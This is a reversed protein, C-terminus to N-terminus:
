RGSDAAPLVLSEIYTNVELFDNLNSINPFRFSNEKPNYVVFSSGLAWLVEGNLLICLPRPSVYKEPEDIYPISFVKTWSEKVGYDKLVWVDARTLQYNCLVCICGGLVGLMVAFFDGEGYNPQEVTGYIESELDLSVIDWRSSTHVVWPSAFWHLKGNAFKGMDDRPAGGKFDEIRRWSNNKLSYVKVVTKYRGLNEYRGFIGVVKYDENAEDFGFGYQICLRPKIAVDVNPLKKYKRFSPNWLIFNNETIAICILGNCSGVVRVFTRPNRGPYGIKVVDTSPEYLFSRLSCTKLNFRPESITFM